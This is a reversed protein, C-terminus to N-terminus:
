IISKDIWKTIVWINKNPDKKVVFLANGIIKIDSDLTLTFGKSIEATVSDSSYTLFNTSNWVLRIIDFNNFIGNTTKIDTEKGWSIFKDETYDRYIFVFSDDLLDRYIISDKFTYAYKFNQLLEQPSKQETLQLEGDNELDSLRPAFPNFCGYLLFLVGGLFLIGKINNKKMILFKGEFSEM